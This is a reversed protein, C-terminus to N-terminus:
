TAFQSAQEISVVLETAEKLEDVFRAVDAKDEIVIAKQDSLLAANL